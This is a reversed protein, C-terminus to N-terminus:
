QNGPQNGVRFLVPSPGVRVRKGLVKTRQGSLTEAYWLRYPAPVHLVRGPNWMIVAGGRAYSYRCRWTGAPGVTCARSAGRMWYRVRSFAAGAASARTSGTAAAARVGLNTTASWDYWGVQQIGAPWSTLYTRAVYAAQETPSLVVPDSVNTEYNTETNWIPKRVGLDALHARFAAIMRLAQEPTDGRNAYGHVTVGDVWRYGGAQAFSDAATYGARIVYAPSLVVADPDASRIAAAAVRTMRAMTAQDGNWFVGYSDPENWVEYAQIRGRYREALARMFVWWDNLNTPPAMVGWGYGLPAAWSPNSSAWRPTLGGVYTIKAGRAEAAAVARDLPGWDFVGRAPNLDRWATGTDWLRVSGVWARPWTGSAAVPGYHMGFYSAPPPPISDAEDARAATLGISSAAATALLTSVIRRTFM